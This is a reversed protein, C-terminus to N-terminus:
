NFQAKINISLSTFPKFYKNIYIITNYQCSIIKIRTVYRGEVCLFLACSYLSSKPPSYSTLFYFQKYLTAYINVVM